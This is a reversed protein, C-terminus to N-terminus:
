KSSTARSLAFTIVGTYNNFTMSFHKPIGKGSQTFALVQNTLASDAYVIVYNSDAITLSGTGSTQGVITISCALTDTSFLLTYQQNGTYSTASLDFTFANAANAIVPINDNPSNVSDNKKCGAAFAVIVCVVAVSLKNM